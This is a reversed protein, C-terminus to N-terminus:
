IHIFLEKFRMRIYQSSDIFNLDGSDYCARFYILRKIASERYYAYFARGAIIVRIQKVIVM